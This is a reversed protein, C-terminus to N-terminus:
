IIQTLIYNSLSKVKLNMNDMIILADFLSENKVCIQIKDFEDLNFKKIFKNIEKLEFKKSNPFMQIIDQKSIIDIYDENNCVSYFESYSKLISSLYRFDKRKKNNEQLLKLNSYLLIIKSNFRKLVNIYDLDIEPIFYVSYKNQKIESVIYKKIKDIIQDKKLNSEQKQIQSYIEDTDLIISNINNQLLIQNTEFALKSKGSSSTGLILIVLSKM